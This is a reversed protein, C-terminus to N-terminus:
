HLHGRDADPVAKRGGGAPAPHVRGGGGEVERHVGGGGRGGAERVGGRGGGLWVRDMFGGPGPLEGQRALLVQERTQPMPGDNAAVVLIAGDMQAAGTIM